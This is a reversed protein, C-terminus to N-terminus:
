GSAVSNSPTSPLCVPTIWPTFFDLRIIIIGRFAAVGNFTRWERLTKGVHVLASNLLM